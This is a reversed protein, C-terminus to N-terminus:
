EYCNNWSQSPATTGADKAEQADIFRRLLIPYVPYVSRVLLPSEKLYLIELIERLLVTLQPLPSGGLRTLLRRTLVGEPDKECIAKHSSKLAAIIDTAAVQLKQQDQEKLSAEQPLKLLADVAREYDQM